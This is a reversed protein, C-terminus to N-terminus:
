SPIPARLKDLITRIQGSAQRGLRHAEDIILLDIHGLQELRRALTQPTGIVVPGHMNVPGLGRM